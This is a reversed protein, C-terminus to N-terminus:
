LGEGKVLLTAPNTPASGRTPQPRFMKEFTGSWDIPKVRLNEVLMEHAGKILNQANGPTYSENPLLELPREAEEALVEGVGEMAVAIDHETLM